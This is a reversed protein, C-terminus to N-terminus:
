CSSACHCLLFFHCPLTPVPLSPWSVPVAGARNPSPLSANTHALPSRTSESFASLQEKSAAESGLVSPESAARFTSFPFLPSPLTPLVRSLHEKAPLSNGLGEVMSEGMLWMSPVCSQLPVLLLDMGPHLPSQLSCMGPSPFSHPSLFSSSSHGWLCLKNNPKVSMSQLSDQACTSRLGAM